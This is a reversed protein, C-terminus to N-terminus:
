MLIYYICVYLMYAYICICPTHMHLQTCTHAYIVCIGKGELENLRCIKNKTKSIEIYKTELMTFPISLDIKECTTGM